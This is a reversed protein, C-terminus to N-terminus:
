IHINMDSWKLVNPCGPALVLDLGSMFEGKPHRGKLEEHIWSSSKKKNSIAQFKYELIYIIMAKWPLTTYELSTADWVRRIAKRNLEGQIATSLM